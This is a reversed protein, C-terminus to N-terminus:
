AKKAANKGGRATVVGGNITIKGNSKWSSISGPVQISDGIGAGGQGGTATIRGGNITITGCLQTDYNWWSGGIGAASSGGSAKLEGDGDITLSTDYGAFIGPYSNPSSFSNKGKVTLDLNVGQDIHFAASKSSNKWSSVDLTLNSVTLHGSCQVNLRANGNGTVVHPGANTIALMAIKTGGQMTEYTMYWGDGSMHAIDEGDIEINLPMFSTAATHGSVAATWLKDGSEFSADAKEAWEYDASPVWLWVRGDSDTKVTDKVEGQIRQRYITKSSGGEGAFLMRVSYVPKGTALSYFRASKGKNNNFGNGDTLGHGPRINSFWNDYTEVFINGCDDPDDGSRLGIDAAGNGGTVDLAGRAKIRIDCDRASSGSPPKVYIAPRGSSGSLSCHAGEEVELTAHSVLDGKVVSVPIYNVHTGPSMELQDSIKITCSTKVEIQAFGDADCGHIEYTKGYGTITIKGAHANYSWGDGSTNTGEVVRDGNIWLTVYSLDESNREWKPYLTLDGAHTWVGMVPSGDAEYYKTGSGNEGTYWGKFNYGYRHTTPSAPTAYGFKALLNETLRSGDDFTITYEIASHTEAGSTGTAGIVTASPSKFVRGNSGGSGASGGYGGHGGRKGNDSNGTYSTYSGETRTGGGYQGDVDGAYYGLERLREQLEKVEMGVSNVQLLRPTPSLTPQGPAETIRVTRPTISPTPTVAKERNYTQQNSVAAATILLIAFVLSVILILAFASIRGKRRM